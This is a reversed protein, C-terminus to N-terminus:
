EEMAQKLRKETNLYRKVVDTMNRMLAQGVALDHTDPLAITVQDGKVATVTFKYPARAFYLSDGEKLGKAKGEVTAQKGEIKKVTFLDDITNGSFASGFALASSLACFALFQISFILFRRIM